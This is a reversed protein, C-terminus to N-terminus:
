DLTIKEVKEIARLELKVKAGEERTAFAADLGITHKGRNIRFDTPDIALTDLARWHADYLIAQDGGTYKLMQGQKM